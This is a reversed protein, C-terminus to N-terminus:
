ESFIDVTNIQLNVDEAKVGDNILEERMKLAENYKGIDQTRCFCDWKTRLKGIQKQKIKNKIDETSKTM